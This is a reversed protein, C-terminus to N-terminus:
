GRFSAKWREYDEQSIEGADLRDRMRKWAKLAMATKPAEPASRDVAIAVGEDTEVPKLGLDDEVRFLVELAGRASEMGTDALAEPVIGMAEAMAAVLEPKPKRIGREYNRVASEGIGVAQGLQAQTMGAEKRYRKIRAGVGM